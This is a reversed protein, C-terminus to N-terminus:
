TSRTLAAHQAELTLLKTWHLQSAFHAEISDLWGKDRWAQRVGDPLRRVREADLVRLHRLSIRGGIRAPLSPQISRLIDHQLLANAFEGTAEIERATKICFSLWRQGLESLSEGTFLKAPAAETLQDSAEDIGLTARGEDTPNAMIIFPYRRVSAPVYHAARWAGSPEVFLNRGRAVGLVCLPWPPNGATFAIPYCMAAERMEAAALPALHTDSAFAYSRPEVLGLAGHRHRSLLALRKYFLAQPRPGPSAEPAQDRRDAFEPLRLKIQHDQAGVQGDMRVGRYYRKQWREKQEDSGPRFLQESFARRSASWEQHERLLVPESALDRLEPEVTDLLGCQVPFVFCIPEGEAFSIWIEPRTVRWNMTFSYPSWDTEIVGALPYIGDKPMNPSGSVFLNWGPETRFLGDLHFTLIGHGFISVPRTRPDSEAPCRIEIDQLSNGGNWKLSFALPCQVEWGHANAINLPLCRYAFSDQTEEM